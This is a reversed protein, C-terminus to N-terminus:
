NWDRPDAEDEMESASFTELDPVIGMVQAKLTEMEGQTIVGQSRLWALKQLEDATTAGPQIAAFRTWMYHRRRRQMEALFADLAEASPVDALFLLERPGCRYGVYTTRSRLFGVGLLVAFALYFVVGGVDGDGAGALAEVASVAGLTLAVLAAWRLGRSAVTARFPEEPLTEYAIREELREFPGGRVAHVADDGLEFRWWRLGRRQEFTM